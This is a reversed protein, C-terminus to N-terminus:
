GPKLAPSYFEKVYVPETYALNAFERNQFCKYSLQALHSANCGTDSFIANASTIIKQLKMSGNGCFLIKNESLMASFSNEDPIMAQPLNKELLTKDYLATFVEMRRADIMPCILDNDGAEDKVAFAIIKLTSIAILPINLAYCFGKASSLGVRLGTYSGPGISVAVAGLENLLYGSKKLIDAITTHLWAAHDKQNENMFLQLAENDKALCVSATDLATDINLILSM